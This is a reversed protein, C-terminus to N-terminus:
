VPVAGRVTTRQMTRIQNDPVGGCALHVTCRNDWLLLQNKSWRHHYINEPREAYDFLELLLNEGEDAAMDAVRVTFRRSVFLAKRDTVPHTRVIPHVADPTRAKVAASKKEWISGKLDEPKMDAPPGFRPNDVLDFQHVARLGAIRDKLDQPLTDYALYMNAWETDGGDVPVDIAYLLSCRSPEAMYSLDSHWISGGDRLSVYNGAADKRNTLLLLEPYDKVNHKRSPHVELTGFRRSFDIHQENTLIQDPFVVVLHELWAAEIQRFEEDSVPQSLDVGRIEAGLAEGLKEVSLKTATVVM